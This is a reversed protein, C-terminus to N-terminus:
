RLLTFHFAYEDCKFAHFAAAFARLDLEQLLIQLLM